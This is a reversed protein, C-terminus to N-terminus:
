YSFAPNVRYAAFSIACRDKESRFILSSDVKWDIALNKDLADIAGESQPTYFADCKYAIRAHPTLVCFGHAFGKPIFLQLNNDSSLVVSTTQGFTPSGSRIDLVVDLIEGEIVRILKAQAYPPKQFHLGRVVGYRSLSENDQVFQACIGLSELTNQNYTECFYGRNDSFITPELILVGDLSTLRSKM